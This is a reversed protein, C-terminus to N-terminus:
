FGGGFPKGTRTRGRTGGCIKGRRSQARVIRVADGCQNGTPFLATRRMTFRDSVSNESMKWIPGYKRRSPPFMATLPSEAWRRAAGIWTPGARDRRGGRLKWVPFAPRRSALFKRPRRLPVREGKADKPPNAGCKGKGMRLSGKLSEDRGVPPRHRSAVPAAACLLTRLPAATNTRAPSKISWAQHGQWPM